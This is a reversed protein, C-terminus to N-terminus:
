QSAVGVSKLPHQEYNLYFPTSQVSAQWANDVAFEACALLEDGDSQDDAVYSRLMELTRNMHETQGCNKEVPRHIILQLPGATGLSHGAGKAHLQLWGM